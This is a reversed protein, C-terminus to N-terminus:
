AVSSFPLVLLQPVPRDAKMRHRLCRRQCGTKTPRRTQRLLFSRMPHFSVHVPYPTNVGLRAANHDSWNRPLVFRLFFGLGGLWAAHDVQTMNRKPEKLTLQVLEKTLEALDLV